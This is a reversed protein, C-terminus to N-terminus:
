IQTRDTNSNCLVDCYMTNKKHAVHPKCQLLSVWLMILSMLTVAQFSVPKSNLCKLTTKIIIWLFTDGQLYTYEINFLKHDKELPDSCICASLIINYTGPIIGIM